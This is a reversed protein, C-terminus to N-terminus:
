TSVYEYCEDSIETTCSELDRDRLRSRRRKLRSLASTAAYPLRV